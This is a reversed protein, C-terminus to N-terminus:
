NDTGVAESIAQFGDREMLRILGRNIRKVAASGEYVFGTYIQEAGAKIKEYVDDGTFIDGVGIIPAQVGVALYLLRVFSTAL